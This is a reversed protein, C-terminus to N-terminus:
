VKGGVSENNRSPIHLRHKEQFPVQIMNIQM